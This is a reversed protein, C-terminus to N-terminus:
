TAARRRLVEILYTRNIEAERAARSVNGGCREMLKEFYRGDLEEIVAARARKYPQTLLPAIFDIGNPASLAPSDARAGEVEPPEGLALTAEVFNRLERVNGPWAHQQLAFLAKESFLESSPGAHGAERVFHEILIPIDEPRERLAPARLTVVAIRYYLDLRFTGSNVESRLDRHTASLVRAQLAIDTKGGVRRFRRRELAGLLLSQVSAPLEGIEDLLVTGDEAREFAGIHKQDAGTFAGREHGFLESAILAPVLAGCDVVEFPAKKRPSEHHLARALLEKGTGSEGILLVAASSPAVKQVQAMLRRLAASRGRLGDLSEAPYVEVPEKAGLTLRLTSGGVDILTGPQVIAREIRVPGAFTGNTSGHDVILLGSRSCSIEVHYRSVTPDNLVLHNNQATGIHIQEGSIKPIAPPSPGEVFEVTLTNVAHEKEGVRPVTKESNVPQVNDDKHTPSPRRTAAKPHRTPGVSQTSHVWCERCYM